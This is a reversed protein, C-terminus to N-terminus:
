EREGPKHLDFLMCDQGAAVQQYNKQVFAAWAPYSELWWRSSAPVVLYRAGYARWKELEAIAAASDAPHSGSHWGEETRPFHWGQASVFDILDDDGESVVLVIAGSPVHSQVCRAAARCARLREVEDQLKATQDQPQCSASLTDSLGSPVAGLAASRSRLEDNMRKLATILANKDQADAAYKEVKEQLSRLTSSQRLMVDRLDCIEQRASTLMAILQNRYESNHVAVKGRAPDFIRAAAMLGEYEVRLKPGHWSDFQQGALEHLAEITHGHSGVGGRVFEGRRVHSERVAELDRVIWLLSPLPEGATEISTGWLQLTMALRPDKVAWPAPIKELMSMANPPLGGHELAYRNCERIGVHEAFEEDATMGETGANWGLAFLMRTLITTGSHGVGLIFINPKVGTQQPTTTLQEHSSM